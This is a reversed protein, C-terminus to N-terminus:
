MGAAVPLTVELLLMDVEVGKKELSPVDAGTLMNLMQRAMTANTRISQPCGRSRDHMTTLMTVGPCVEVLM